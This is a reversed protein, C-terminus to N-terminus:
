FRAGLVLEVTSEPSVIAEALQRMDYQLGRFERSSSYTCKILFFTHQV